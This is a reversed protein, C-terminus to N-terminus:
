ESFKKALHEFLNLGVKFFYFCVSWAGSYDLFMSLLNLFKVLLIEFLFINYVPFMPSNPLDYYSNVLM